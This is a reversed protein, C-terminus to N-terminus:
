RLALAEARRGLRRTRSGVVSRLSLAPVLARQRHTRPRRERTEEGKCCGCMTPSPSGNGLQRCWSESLHRPGSQIGRGDPLPKGSWSQRHGARFTGRGTRTGAGGSLLQKGYRRTSADLGRPSHDAFARPLRGSSPVISSTVTLWCHASCLRCQQLRMRLGESSETQKPKM